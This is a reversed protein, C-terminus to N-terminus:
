ITISLGECAMQVKKNCITYIEDALKSIQGFHPFHTIIVEAPKSRTIINGVDTTNMHGKVVGQQAQYFSCEVLLLDADMAFEVIKDTYGTDATYVLASKKENVIKMACCPIEHLNDAFTIQLPGITISASLDIQHIRMIEPYEFSLADIDESYIYVDLPKTRIGLQTKILMAYELSYIDAMHDTHTHSIFVADLEELKIQNQLKALAGSGCDLLINTDDEQVLYCSTAENAEPYAGWYGITTLEM